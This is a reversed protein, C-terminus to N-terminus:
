GIILVIAILSILSIISSLAVAKKIMEEDVSFQKSIRYVVLATPASAAIVLSYSWYPELKMFYAVGIAILPHILNKALVISVLDVKLCEKTIKVAGLTLGFVFLALGPAGKGMQVVANVLPLPLKVQLYNFFIGILPMLILPTTIVIMLKRALSKEKHKLANLCVIFIPQIMVVQIMNGIIAATPDKLLISIVSLGYTGANVYGSALIRMYVSVPSLKWGVVLVVILSILGFSMLYSVIYQMNLLTSLDNQYATTFLYSPVVLNFLLQELGEIQAKSFIEKKHFFIGLFIVLFITILSSFLTM